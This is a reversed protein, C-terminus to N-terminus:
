QGGAQSRRARLKAQAAQMEAMMGMGGGPPGPRSMRGGSGGTTSTGSASVAAAASGTSAVSSRDNTTTKKLKHKGQIQALLDGRGGGGSPRPPAAPGNGNGKSKGFMGGLKSKRKSAVPAPVATPLKAGGGVDGSEGFFEAIDAASMDDQEMKHRVAGEPLGCKQMMSYKSFRPNKSGSSAGSGSAAAAAPPVPPTAAQVPRPAPSPVSVPAPAHTVAVGGASDGGDSTGFFEAIDAASMDDQEMKQRVAGEPLGCKQMMSYKSFRPNKSGGDSGGGGSAAAASQQTPRPPPAPPAPATEVATTEPPAPTPTAPVGTSATQAEAAEWEDLGRYFEVFEAKTYHGSGDPAPRREAEAVDWEATGGYFDVFERQTYYGSNDPALRREPDLDSSATSTTRSASVPEPTPASAKAQIQEPTATPIPRPPPPPPLDELSPASAQAPAPIPAPAPAPTPEPAPAPAPAPSPAPAPAPAPAPGPAPAPARSAERRQQTELQQRLQTTNQRQAQEMEALKTRAGPKFTPPKVGDLNLPTGVALRSKIRDQISSRSRGAAANVAPRERAREAVTTGTLVVVADPRPNGSSMTSNESAAVAASAEATLSVFRRRAYQEKSVRLRHTLVKVDQGLEDLVALEEDLMKTLNSSVCHLNKAVSQVADQLYKRTANTIENKDGQVFSQQCWEIVDNVYKHNMHLDQLATPLVTEELEQVRETASSAAM